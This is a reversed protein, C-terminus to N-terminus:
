NKKNKIFNALADEVSQVENKVPEEKVLDTNSVTSHLVLDKYSKMIEANKSVLANTDAEVESLKNNITALKQVADTDQTGDLMEAVLKKLEELNNM